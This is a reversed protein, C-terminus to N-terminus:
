YIGLEKEMGGAKAANRDIEKFYENLDLTSGWNKYLQATLPKM